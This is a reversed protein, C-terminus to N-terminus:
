VVMYIDFEGVELPMSAELQIDFRRHHDLLALVFDLWARAGQSLVGGRQIALLHERESVLSASPATMMAALDSGWLRIARDGGGSALLTGDPTVDVSYIWKMPGKLTAIPTAEPLRWLRITKDYSGSALLRGDPTIALSRVSGTHGKLSAAARGGSLRWLRITHDHSGCVLRTGDPTIALSDTWRTRGKLTALPAGDPLRWLRITQDDSASALM